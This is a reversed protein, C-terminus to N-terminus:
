RTMQTKPPAGIINRDEGEGKTVGPASAAKEREEYWKKLDRLIMNGEYDQITHSTVLNAIDVLLVEKPEYRDFGARIDAYAQEYMATMPQGQPHKKDKLYIYGNERYQGDPLKEEPTNNKGPGSYGGGSYGGGGGAYAEEASMDGFVDDWRTGAPYGVIDAYRDPLVGLQSWLSLGERYRKDDAENLENQYVSTKYGQEWEKDGRQDAYEQDYLAREYMTQDEQLARNYMTDSRQDAYQREWREDSIADRQMQYAWQRQKDSLQDGYERLYQEWETAKWNQADAYARLEQAWERDARNDLIADRQAQYARNYDRAEENWARNYQTEDDYRYDGVADRYRGYSFNRDTNYQGLQDLYRQYETGGYQNYRDALDLNKGQQDAWRSYERDDFGQYQDSIGMQRQFEQLYRQYADQYLQPLRDSLQAAYYDGAQSAATVAYSNALGGTRMAAQAMAEQTARDGERRYQKQLAQWVPDTNPDYNWQMNEARELAADRRPQYESGQWKEGYQALADDRQREYETGNWEPADPYEWQDLYQQYTTQGLQAPANSIVPAAQVPQTNQTPQSPQTNQVPQNNTPAPTTTPTTTRSTYEEAYNTPRTSPTNPVNGANKLAQGLAVQEPTIQGNKMAQAIRYDDNIPMVLGNADRYYGQAELVSDPATQNTYRKYQGDELAWFDSDQYGASPGIYSGYQALTVNGSKRLSGDAGMTYATGDPAYFVTGQAYGTEGIKGGFAPAYGGTGDVARLWGNYNGNDDYYGSWNGNERFENTDRNWSTDGAAYKAGIADWSARDADSMGLKFNPDQTGFILYDKNQVAPQPTGLAKQTAPDIADGSTSNRNTSTINVTNALAAQYPTLQQSSLANARAQAAQAQQMQAALQTNGTQTARDISRQMTQASLLSNVTQIDGAKQAQQLARQQEQQARAAQAQAQATQVQSPVAGGSTAGGTAGGTPLPPTRTETATNAMQLALSSAAAPSQQMAAALREKDVESLARKYLNNNVQTSIAM